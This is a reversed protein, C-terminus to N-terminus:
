TSSHSSMEIVSLAARRLASSAPSISMILWISGVCAFAWKSVPSMWTMRAGLWVAIWTKRM